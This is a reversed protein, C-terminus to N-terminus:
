DLPIVYDGELGSPRGRSVELPKFKNIRHAEKRVQYALCESLRGRFILGWNTLKGLAEDMTTGACFCLEPTSEFIEQVDRVRLPRSNNQTYADRILQDAITYASSGKKYATRKAM